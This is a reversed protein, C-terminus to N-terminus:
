CKRKKARPEDKQDSENSPTKNQDRQKLANRVIEESASNLIECVEKNRNRSYVQLIKENFKKPSFIRSIKDPFHAKDFTRKSYVKLKRIPDESKLGYDLDIIQVNFDKETVNVAM